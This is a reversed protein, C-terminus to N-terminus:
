WVPFGLIVKSFSSLDPLQRCLQPRTDHLKEQNASDVCIAYQEPYPNEMEIRFMNTGIMEAMDRAMQETRGSWSFHAFMAKRVM